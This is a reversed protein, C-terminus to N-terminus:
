TYINNTKEYENLNTKDLSNLYFDGTSDWFVVNINNKFFTHNKGRFSFLILNENDEFIIESM